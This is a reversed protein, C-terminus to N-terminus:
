RIGGRIRGRDRDKDWLRRDRDRDRDLERDRDARRDSWERDRFRSDRDRDLGRGIGIGIGISTDRDRSDRDRDRDRERERDRDRAQDRERQDRERITEREHYSRPQSPARLANNPAAAAAENARVMARPAAPIPRNGPFRNPNNPLTPTNAFPHSPLPSGFRAILAARPQTPPLPLLNQKSQSSGLIPTLPGPVTRSATEPVIEGDETGENGPNPKARLAPSPLEVPTHASIPSASLSPGITHSGISLTTDLKPSIIRRGIPSHSRSVSASASPSRHVRIEERPPTAPVSRPEATERVDSQPSSRTSPSSLHPPLHSEPVSDERFQKQAPHDGDPSIEANSVNVHGNVSPGIGNLKPFSDTHATQENPVPSLKDQQVSDERSHVTTEVSEAKVQEHDPEPETANPIPSPRPTDGAQQEGLQCNSENIPTEPAGRMEADLLTRTEVVPSPQDDNQKKRRM